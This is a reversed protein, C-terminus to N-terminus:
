SKLIYLDYIAQGTIEEILKWQHFLLKIKDSKRYKLYATTLKCRFICDPLKRKNSILNRYKNTTYM